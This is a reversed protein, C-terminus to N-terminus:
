ETEITEGSVRQPAHTGWCVAVISARVRRATHHGAVTVRAALAVQTQTRAVFGV